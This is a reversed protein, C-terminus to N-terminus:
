SRFGLEWSRNSLAALDVGELRLLARKADHGLLYNAIVGDGRVVRHCPILLPVPNRAVAGGVARSATPKGLAQAIWRYSRVQGRPITQGLRLVAIDFPTSGSLDISPPAHEDGNWLREIAAVLEVSPNATWQVDRGFRSRYRAVFVDEGPLRDVFTIGHQSAAMAVPGVPSAMTWCQDTVRTQDDCQPRAPM